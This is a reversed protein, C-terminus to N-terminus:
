ALPMGSVGRVRVAASRRSSSQHRRGPERQCAVIPVDCLAQLNVDGALTARNVLCQNVEGLSHLQVQFLHVVRAPWRVVVGSTVDNLNGAAHAGRKTSTM